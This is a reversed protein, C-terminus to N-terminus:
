VVDIVELQVKKAVTVAKGVLAADVTKAELAKGREYNEMWAVMHADVDDLPDTFVLYERGKDDWASRSVPQLDMNKTLTSGDDFTFTVNVLRGEASNIQYKM